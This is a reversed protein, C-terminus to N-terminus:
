SPVSKRPTRHFVTRKAQAMSSGLDTEVCDLPYSFPSYRALPCCRKKKADGGTRTNAPQCLFRASKASNRAIQGSFGVYKTVQEIKKASKAINEQCRFLPQIDKGADLISPTVRL